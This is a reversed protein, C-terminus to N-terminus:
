LRRFKSQITRESADVPVGLAQYFNGARRLEWDAEYVTYFLYALIVLSHIIKRHRIFKPTGPQPRPDGARIM